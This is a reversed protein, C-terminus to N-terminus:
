ESAGVLAWWAIVPSVVAALLGAWVGKLGVFATVSMPELLGVVALLPLAGLGVGMTALVLARWLSSSRAMGSLPSVMEIMPIKGREVQRRIVTSNILCIAFPLLFGTIMLDIGVGSEGWLLLSEHSRFILWAIGGNLVLNLLAPVLMQEIALWRRHRLTLTRLARAQVPGDEFDM